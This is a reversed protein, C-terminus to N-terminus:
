KRNRETPRQPVIPAMVSSSTNWRVGSAKKLAMSASTYTWHGAMWRLQEIAAAESGIPKDKRELLESEPAGAKIRALWEDADYEVGIPDAM